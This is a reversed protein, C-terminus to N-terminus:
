YLNDLREQKLTKADYDEPLKGALIGSLSDVASANKNTTKVTAKSKLAQKTKKKM